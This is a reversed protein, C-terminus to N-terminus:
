AFGDGENTRLLRELAATMGDRRLVQLPTEGDLTEDPALLFDLAVWPGASSFTRLLAPLGSLAEGRREDFQCSPYRWDGGQRVALLANSRRRKEVAQRSIGFLTAVESSSLSGGAVALLEIRHEANRAILPALPEIEIVAAGVADTDGLARALAGVDTAAALANALTKEDAEAAIRAIVNMSRRLFAERLPETKAARRTQTDSLRSHPM